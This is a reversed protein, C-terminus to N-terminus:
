IKGVVAWRKDKSVPKTEKILVKDGVKYENKEDHAKYRKSRVIYKGYLPHKTYRAVKVVVTKKMKDSVVVGKLIKSM